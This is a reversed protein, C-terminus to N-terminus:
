PGLSDYFQGDDVTPSKRDRPVFVRVTGGCTGGFEDAAEFTIQYVRGNGTGSREARLLVTAGQLVADPSTDGDGLMDIPEDQMVQTVTTTISDNNPDSLGTIGVRILKHTPPWLLDPTARALHCVPPDNVNLISIVVQDPSSTVLGDNVRLEFTLNDGGLSVQPAVFTPLMAHPDSLTVPTGGLQRWSYTLQNADVDLSQSGDLTVLSGENRTQDPGANAVPTHNSNAIIVNVSDVATALGDSVRLDFTLTTGPPEVLPAFFTAEFAGASSLNVQPGQTQVWSFTLADNDPDFSASGNLTVLSLPGVTQDSGANAVPPHNVNKIAVNVEDQNSTLFGDSVKLGLTVMAGGSGVSPAVFTPRIPDSLVNLSVAPGALQSWEFTLADGNPDFSGSGNLTVFAGEDVSQDPGASATPAFNKKGVLQAYKTKPETFSRGTVLFNTGDYAIATEFPFSLNKFTPIGVPDLVVGDLSVRVAAGYASTAIVVWNTGDFIVNGEGAGIGPIPISEALTPGDLVVGNESVRAGMLPVPGTSNTFVVLFSNTGFRVGAPFGILGQTGPATNIAIPSSVTGTPSVLAGFIDRETDNITASNTWVVLYKSAGFAVGPARQWGPGGAIIFNAGIKDGNAGILQGVVDNQTTTTGGTWVVLFNQGDSAVKPREAASSTGVMIQIEGGVLNGSPSVLQGKVNDLVGLEDQWVVLYNTGNFAVASFRQNGQRHAILFPPSMNGSKDVFRGYIDEFYFSADFSQNFVVLYRSGDFAVPSQITSTTTTNIVLDQELLPAFPQAFVLFPFSITLGLVLLRSCRLLFSGKVAKMKEGGKINLPKELSGHSMTTPGLVREHHNSVLGDM